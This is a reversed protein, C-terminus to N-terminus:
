SEITAKSGGSQAIQTYYGNLFGNVTTTLM